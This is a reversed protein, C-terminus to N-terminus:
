TSSSQDPRSESMLKEVEAEVATGRFFDPNTDTYFRAVNEFTFARFQDADLRGEEVLEYAEHLVDRMDPVDWHGIDSGFLASLQVGFPLGSRDFGHHVLPDDAECGFAFNPAFLRAIDEPSEIGCAAFEDDPEAQGAPSGFALQHIDPGSAMM